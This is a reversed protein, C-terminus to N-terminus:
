PRATLPDRVAHLPRAAVPVRRRREREPDPGRERAIQTFLPVLMWAHSDGMLLIHKGPGTVVTCQTVPANYCHTYPATKARCRSIRRAGATLVPHESTERSKSSAHAPDVISPSSCSRRIRRQHRARVRDRHPPPPRPAGVHAGATRPDPLEAVRARDRRPVHHRGHRAPEPQFTRLVVLIVLWHWLYTGYSVKGLYVATSSSLIANSGVAPPRKSRSSSCAPPSRSRSAASSRTSISGRRASCSCRASVPSRPSWCRGRSGSRGTSRRPPSRSSRARSCSTPARTPATTRTTRTAPGCRCRGRRRGVRASRSRSRSRAADPPARDLRRSLLFIAASRSRGCCTSSSRSRSRGSRCCRTPPSTPASTAARTTSSIGTPRTSSRPRSRSADRGLGRRDVLDRHVGGRDRDARRVRGPAPAPLAALLLPRLPDLRQARPRAAPAADRPLGVPRLVRRRRHLRGLVRELGAHFLLVLYVAVARLGDLHPRYTDPAATEAPDPRRRRRGRALHDRRCKASRRRSTRRRRARGANALLDIVSLHDVFEGYLQPYPASRRTTSCTSRSAVRRHLRGARPLRPRAPRHPVPHRRRTARARRGQREPLPRRDHRRRLRLRRHPPMRLRLSAHIAELFRM